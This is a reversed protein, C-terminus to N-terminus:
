QAGSKVTKFAAKIRFGDTKIGRSEEQDTDAPLGGM